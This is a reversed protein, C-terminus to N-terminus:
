RKARQQRDFCHFLVWYIWCMPLVVICSLFHFALFSFYQVPPIDPQQLIDLPSPQSWSLNNNHRHWVFAQHSSVMLSLPEEHQSVWLHERQSLLLLLDEPRLHRHSSWFVVRAGVHQCGPILRNRARAWLPSNISDHGLNDSKKTSCRVIHLGMFKSYSRKGSKKTTFLIVSLGVCKLRSLIAFYVSIDFCAVSKESNQLRSPHERAWHLNFGYHIEMVRPIAPLKHSNRPHTPKTLIKHRIRRWQSVKQLLPDFWPPEGPHM